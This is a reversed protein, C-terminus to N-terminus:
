SDRTREDELTDRRETPRHQQTGPNIQRTQHVRERTNDRSTEKTEATLTGDGTEPEYVKEESM